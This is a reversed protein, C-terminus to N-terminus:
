GAAIHGDMEPILYLQSELFQISEQAIQFVEDNSVRRNPLSLLRLHMVAHQYQSVFDVQWIDCIKPILDM